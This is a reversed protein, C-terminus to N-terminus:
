INELYNQYTVSKVRGENETMVDKDFFFFNCTESDYGYWVDLKTKKSILNVISTVNQKCVMSNLHDFQSEFVVGYMMVECCIRELDTGLYDELKEGLPQTCDFSM